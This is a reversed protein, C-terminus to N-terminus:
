LALMDCGIQFVGAPVNPVNGAILGKNTVNDADGTDGAVVTV